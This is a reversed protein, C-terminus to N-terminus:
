RQGDDRQKFSCSTSSVGCSAPPSEKVQLALMVSEKSPCRLGTAASDPAANRVTLTSGSTSSSTPLSSLCANDRALRFSNEKSVSSMIHFQRLLRQIAGESGSTFPSRLGGSVPGTGSSSSVFVNNLVHQTTCAHNRTGTRALSHQVPRFRSANATRASTREISLRPTLILIFLFWFGIFSCHSTQLQNPWWTRKQAHRCSFPQRASHHRAVEPKNFRGSGDLRETSRAPRSEQLERHQLKHYGRKLKDFQLFCNVDASAIIVYM